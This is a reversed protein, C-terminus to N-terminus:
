LSTLQDQTPDLAMYGYLRLTILQTLSFVRNLEFLQFFPNRELGYHHVARNTYWGVFWVIM